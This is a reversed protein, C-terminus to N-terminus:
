GGAPSGDAALLARLHIARYREVFIALAGDVLLAAIMPTLWWWEPWLFMSDPNGIHAFPM